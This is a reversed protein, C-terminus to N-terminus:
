SLSLRLQETAVVDHEVGNRFEVTLVQTFEESGIVKGAIKRAANSIYKPRRERNTHERAKACCLRSRECVEAVHHSAKEFLQKTTRLRFLEKQVRDTGGCSGTVRDIRHADLIDHRRGRTV